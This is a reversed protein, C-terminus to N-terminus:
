VDHKPESWITKLRRDIRLHKDQVRRKVIFVKKRAMKEAYTRKLKMPIINQISPNTQYLQYM